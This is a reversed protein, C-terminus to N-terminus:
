NDCIIRNFNDMRCNRGCRIENFHNAICNMDRRNACAAKSMTKVCSYGCAIHGFNDAVCQQDPTSACAVQEITNVCNYGCARAGFPNQVCQKEVRDRHGRFQPTQNTEIEVHPINNPRIGHHKQYFDNPAAWSFQMSSLLFSLTLFFRIM